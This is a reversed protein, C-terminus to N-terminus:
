SILDLVSAEKVKIDAMCAHVNASTCFDNHTYIPGEQAVKIKKVVGLNQVTTTLRQGVM